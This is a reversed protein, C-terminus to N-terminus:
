HCSMMRMNQILYKETQAFVLAAIIKFRNEYNRWNCIQLLLRVDSRTTYAYKTYM